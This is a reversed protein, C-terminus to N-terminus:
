ATTFGALKITACLRYERASIFHVNKQYSYFMDNKIWGSM